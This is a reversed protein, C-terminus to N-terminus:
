RSQRSLKPEIILLVLGAMTALLGFFQMLVNALRSQQRNSTVVQRFLRKNEGITTTFETGKYTYTLVTEVSKRKHMEQKKIERQEPTNALRAWVTFIDEPEGALVVGESRYEYLREPLLVKQFGTYFVAVGLAILMMASYLLARQKYESTIQQSAYWSDLDPIQRLSAMNGKDKLGSMFADVDMSLASLLQRFVENSPTSKDNELKSLYSQEVQMREAFQPQSLEMDTRLQKIYQGLTMVTEQQQPLQRRIRPLEDMFVLM